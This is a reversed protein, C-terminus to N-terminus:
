SFPVLWGALPRTPQAPAWIVLVHLRSWKMLHWDTSKIGLCSGWIPRTKGSIRHLAQTSAAPSHLPRAAGHLFWHQTALICSACGDPELHSVSIQIFPPYQWPPPSLQTSRSLSCSGIRNECAKTTTTAATQNCKFVGFVLLSHSKNIVYITRYQKLDYFLPMSFALCCKLILGSSSALLAAAHVEPLGASAWPSGLVFCGGEAEVEAKLFEAPHTQLLRHSAAVVWM